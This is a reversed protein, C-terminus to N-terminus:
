ASHDYGSREYITEVIRLTAIGDEPRCSDQRGAEIDDLFAVTEIRWFDDDMPNEWTCTEPPGMEPGMKYWTVREVGYSGGLSM